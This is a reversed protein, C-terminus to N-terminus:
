NNKNFNMLEKFRNFQQNSESIIKTAKQPASALGENMRRKTTVPKVATRTNRTGEALTTYILKAERVNKARDLTEIVRVKQAESLQSRKFLKNVYLLKANLLNVESLKSRLFRIVNYAEDLDAKASPAEEEEEKDETEEADGDEEKLAKILEDLNIEEDGEAQDDGTPIQEDGEMESVTPDMEGDETAPDEGELERILEELDDDSVEDEGSMEDDGGMDETDGGEQDTDCDEGAPAEDDGGLDGDLDDDSDELDDDGLDDGEEALGANKRMREDSYNAQDGAEQGDLEPIEEGEMDDMEEKIKSSLMSQLKPAFAEELVQKANALATERVAKADAIAEKLLKNM